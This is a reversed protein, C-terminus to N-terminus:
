CPTENGKRDCPARRLDRAPDSVRAAAGAAAARTPAPRPPPDSLSQFSSRESPAARMQGEAYRMFYALRKPLARGGVRARGWLPPPFADEAIRTDPPPANM